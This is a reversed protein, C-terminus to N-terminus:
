ALSLLFVHFVFLYLIINYLIIYICLNSSLQINHITYVKLLSPAQAFPHYFITSLYLLRLVFLSLADFVSYVDVHIYLIM